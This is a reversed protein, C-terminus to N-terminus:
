DPHGPRPRADPLCDPRRRHRSLAARPARPRDGHSRDRRGSGRRPPRQALHTQVSTVEPVTGAIEREVENAVSHAEELALDGPLKLHLSVETGDDTRL